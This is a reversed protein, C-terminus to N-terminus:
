NYLIPTVIYLSVAQDDPDLGSQLSSSDWGITKRGDLGQEELKLQIPVWLSFFFLFFFRLAKIDEVLFSCSFM